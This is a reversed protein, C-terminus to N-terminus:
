KDTLSFSAIGSKSSKVTVRVIKNKEINVYIYDPKPQDINNLKIYRGLNENLVWKEIKILHRNPILYEEFYKEQSELGTNTRGSEVKDIYIVYYCHRDQDPSDIDTDFITIFFNNKGQRSNDKSVTICGSIILGTLLPLLYIKKM